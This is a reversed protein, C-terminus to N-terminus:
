TNRTGLGQVTQPGWRQEKESIGNVFNPYIEWCDAGLDDQTISVTHGAAAKGM